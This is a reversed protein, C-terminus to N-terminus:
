FVRSAPINRIMTRPVISGEPMADRIGGRLADMMDEEPHGDAPTDIWEGGRKKRQYNGFAEKLRVCRPHITLRNSDLLVEITDLGDLVLHSPWRALIRSGFVAEYETYAAPGVGSRASAAPDIRVQDIKGRCPLEGALAKIAKACFESYKDQVCYEGFVTIRPRNDTGQRLQFFVAATTRSTGADIAVRVQFGTHYEAEVSVHKAPDFATFWVGETTDLFEAHIEQRGLRTNEYMGLIQDLFEKPLHAQNAYTADTTRATTPKAVIERLIQVRRPTTTILAAPDDGACLALMANDWTGQARSWCALEDAWLTDINLGRLSEPSEGSRLAAWAGNPWVLRNKSAQHVPRMDPPAISLLGSPGELMVDVIDQERPAILAGLRMAGSEVRAQIWEAGARTKGAGRGAVYAWM